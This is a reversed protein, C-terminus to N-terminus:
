WGLGLKTLKARVKTLRLVVLRDEREAVTALDGNPAFTVQQVSKGGHPLWRFLREKADVDWM